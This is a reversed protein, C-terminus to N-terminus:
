VLLPRSEIAQSTISKSCVSSDWDWLSVPLWPEDQPEDQELAIVHFWKKGMAIDCTLCKHTTLILGVCLKLM